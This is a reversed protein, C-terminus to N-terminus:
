MRVHLLMCNTLHLLFSPNAITGECLVIVLYLNQTNSVQLGESVQLLFDILATLLELTVVDQNHANSLNRWMEHAKVWHNHQLDNVNTPTDTFYLCDM